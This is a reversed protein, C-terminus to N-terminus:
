CIHKEYIERARAYTEERGGFRCPGIDEIVFSASATGVCACWLPDKSRIYEALFAGIYADGAGTPDVLKRPSYPPVKFFAEDFLLTSGRMGKTVVVVEVGYDLIKRAARRINTTGAVMRIEDSSSKYVDVLKM